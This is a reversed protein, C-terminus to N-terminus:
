YSENNMDAVLEDYDDDNDDVGETTLFKVQSDDSEEQYEELEEEAEELEEAEVEYEPEQVECTANVLVKIPPSVIALMYQTPPFYNRT